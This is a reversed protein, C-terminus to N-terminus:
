LSVISEPNLSVPLARTLKFLHAFLDAISPSNSAKQPHTRSGTSCDSSITGQCHHLPLNPVPPVSPLKRGRREKGESGKSEWEEGKGDM